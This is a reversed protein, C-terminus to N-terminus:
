KNKLTKNKKPKNKNKLTKNKNEYFYEKLHQLMRKGIIEDIEQEQKNKKDTNFNYKKFEDNMYMVFDEKNKIHKGLKSNLYQKIMTNIDLKYHYPKVNIYYVNDNNMGDHYVDDIFCIEINKPLKTCRIFDDITKDHSTRGLEVPTGRVKFAAIIQDFLKYKVKKDFYNKINICWNRDGQNNTYIM